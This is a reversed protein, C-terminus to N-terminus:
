ALNLTVSLTCAVFNVFNKRSRLADNDFEFVDYYM